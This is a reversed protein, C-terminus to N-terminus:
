LAGNSRLVFNLAPLRKVPGLGLLEATQMCRCWESSYVNARDLGSARLKRGIERSQDRGRDSLNRQTTCDGLKFQVPDGTGPALAHRMIAFATGGKVAAVLRDRETDALAVGAMLVLAMLSAMMFALSRM